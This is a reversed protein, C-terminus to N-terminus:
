LLAVLNPLTRAALLGYSRRSRTTSLGFLRVNPAHRSGEDSNEAHRRRQHKRGSPSAVRFGGRRGGRRRAEDADGGARATVLGLRRGPAARVVVEGHLFRRVLRNEAGEVARRERVAVDGRTEDLPVALEEDVGVPRVALEGVELDAVGEADVRQLLVQDGERVPPHLREADGPVAPRLVLAALAPEMQIGILLELGAIRQVPCPNILGPIEHAGLAVRRLQALVVVRLFVGIGRGPRLDVDGALGAVAGARDVDGPRLALLAWQGPAFTAVVAEGDVEVLPPVNGPGEVRGGAVGTAARGPRRRLLQLGAPHAM